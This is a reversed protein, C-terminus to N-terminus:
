KTRSNKHKTKKKNRRTRKRSVGDKLRRYGAKWLYEGISESLAEVKDENWTMFEAHILEHVFTILEEQGDPCKNITIIGKYGDYLGYIPSQEVTVSTKGNSLLHDFSKM